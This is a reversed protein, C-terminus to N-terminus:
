EESVSMGNQLYLNQLDEHTRVTHLNDPGLSEMLIPYSKELFSKAEEFKQQLLLSRGLHSEVQAVRWDGEEYVNKRINLAERLFPEAESPRDDKILVTGIAYSSVAIDPHDPPLTNQRLILGEQYHNFADEYKEMKEYLGGLNNLVVAIFPHEPPFVLRGIELARQLDAEALNYEGRDQHVGSYGSLTYAMYPHEEGWEENVIAVAEEFLEDAEDLRGDEQLLIALNNLNAALNSNQEKHQRRIEITRYYAKYAEDMQALEELALALTNLVSAVEPHDPGYLDVSMELAKRATAEAEDMEGLRYQLNSLLLLISAYDTSIEGINQYGATAQELAPYAQEYLGLNTYVKGIIGLMQAQIAPQDALETQVKEFGQDLMERATTSGDNADTPDSEEFLEILFDSVEQAQQANQQAQKAQWLTAGLGVTLALVVLAAATVGWRHRYIFKKSRYAVSDPRAYIPLGTEHRDIDVLLSEVSDFRRDPDKHLAKNIIADLDGRLTQILESRDIKRAQVILERKEDNHFDALRNGPLPPDQELVMKEVERFTHDDVDFPHLGTLLKYLLVGLSYIDTSTNVPKGAVQEPSAYELSLMRMGPQTEIASGEYLNPDLLKAIGFDLIIVHGDETVLINEPKLDRHVILSKHAYQITRCITKFLNLRQNIDLKRKDCYELISEGEVYEMVMYPIGEDTIGSDIFGSINPHQLGSLIQQELKFREIHSQTVLSQHVIKLAGVQQLGSEDTRRAKYVSGMGGRGILETIVWRGINKGKYFDENEGTNELLSSLEDIVGQNKEFYEEFYHDSEELNELMKLVKKELDPDDGCVDKIYATRGASPMTLVKDFIRSLKKWYKQDM